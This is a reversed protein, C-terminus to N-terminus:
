LLRGSILKLFAEATRTAGQGDCIEASAAALQRRLGADTLLRMIAWDLKVDFDSAAADIVLAAGRQAMAEAAPRQNDALVILVSPLG